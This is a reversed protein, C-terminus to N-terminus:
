KCSRCANDNYLHQYSGHLVFLFVYGIGEGFTGFIPLYALGNNAWKDGLLM